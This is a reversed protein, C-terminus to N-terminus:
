FLWTVGIEIEIFLRISETFFIGAFGTVIFVDSQFDAFFAKRIALCATPWEV